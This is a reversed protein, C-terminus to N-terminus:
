NVRFFEYSAREPLTTAADVNEAAIYFEKIKAADVTASFVGDAATADGNKGDDTMALRVFVNPKSLRYCLYATKCNDIKATIVQNTELLTTKQESIKPGIKMMLPNKALWQARAQMLQQIGIVKDPGSIMTKEFSNNFDDLTYLKMNDMSVWPSIESSMRRAISMMEGNQLFENNVTRLHAFYIKRYFPNKLLQSILPRKANEADALPSYQILQEDKYEDFSMDRRWGGFSMNFDWMIPHCINQTDAWLYYNHSLSGNYSDLNVMINNLALMWLAQDVDLATEIKDPTKNLIKILRLLPPWAKVDDVEYFADYCGSNDNLYALSSNEGKPCGSQSRTKKWNDPDCKIIYGNTAGFHRKIFVTDISEANTYLGYFTENIYLKSFNCYPAPMYHKVVEYMLPDRIFSPDLFANSLRVTKQGGPLKQSKKKYDLKINFPLKKATDKRTRFYSSNGKYRVGISDFQMGDVWGTGILRADPNVKKLSDLKFDWNSSPMKLRVERVTIPAYFDQANTQIALFFLFYIISISRM